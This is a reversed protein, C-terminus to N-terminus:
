LREDTAPSKEAEETYAETEAADDYVPAVQLPRVWFFWLLLLGGGLVLALALVTGALWWSAGTPPPAAVVTFRVEAPTAPGGPWDQLEVRLTHPGPALPQLSFRLLPTQLVDVGDLFVHFLGAQNWEASDDPALRVAGETALAVLVETGTIIAGAGPQVIRVQVAQGTPTQARAQGAILLSLGLGM